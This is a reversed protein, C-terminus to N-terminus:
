KRPNRNKCKPCAKRRERAGLMAGCGVCARLIKHKPSEAALRKNVEARIVATPILELPPCLRDFEEVMASWDSDDWSQRGAERMHADAFAVAASWIEDRMMRDDMRCDPWRYDASGSHALGMKRLHGNEDRNQRTQAGPTRNGCESCHCPRSADIQVVDSGILTM